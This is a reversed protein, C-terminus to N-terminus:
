ARAGARGGRFRARARGSSGPRPPAAAGEPTLTVVVDAGGAAGGYGDLFLFYYGPALSEVVLVSALGNTDDNCALETGADDCAGRLYLVTDYDNNEVVAEFRSPTDVRVVVVHEPGQPNGCTAGYRDRGDTRLSLRGGPASLRSLAM